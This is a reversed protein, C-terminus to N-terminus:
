QGVAGAARLLLGLPRVREVEIEVAGPMGHALAVSTSAPDLDIEVRIFGERPQSSVARVVGEVAGYRVWSFGDLRMQAAQETAIRGLAVGAPFHAVAILPADPVVTALREGEAVVAGPRVASLEGIRGSVPAVVTREQLSAQLSAISRRTRALEGALEAEERVLSQIRAARDSDTEVQGAVVLSLDQRAATLAAGARRAEAEARALEEGSVAKQDALSRLTQLERDAESAAIKASEVRARQSDAAAASSAASASGGAEVADREARVASLQQELAAAWATEGALEERSKVGSLVFLPQGQEVRAGLAAPVEVVQGAAPSQVLSVEGDVQLSADSSVAVVTVRGLLSWLAWGFTVVLAGTLSIREWRPTESRLSRVTARFPTPKM